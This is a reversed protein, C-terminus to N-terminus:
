CLTRGHGIGGIGDDGAGPEGFAQAFGVQADDIRGPEHRVIRAVCLREVGLAANRARDEEVDVVDGIVVCIQRVHQRARFHEGRADAFEADAVARADDDVVVLADEGARAHPPHEADHTM